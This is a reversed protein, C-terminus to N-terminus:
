KSVIKFFSNLMVCNFNNKIATVARGEKGRDQSFLDLYILIDITAFGPLIYACVQKLLSSKDLENLDNSSNLNANFVNIDLAVVETMSSNHHFIQNAISTM